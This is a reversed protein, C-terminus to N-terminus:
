PQIAFLTPVPAAAAPDALIGRYLAELRETQHRLNFMKRMREQGDRGLRVRLGADSLVRDLAAALACWDGEPVLLGGNGQAVAEPIGGVEYSVVPVGCAQAEAFVMGFGERWGDSATISPVCMVAARRLWAAVEEPPRMGLFDARVGITAALRGLAAREPGDGLLVVRLDPHRQRIEAVARILHSGGKGEVLRGAFVVIPERPAAPDGRFRDLDVGTYHVVVRDAPFGQALLCDKIFHSVAIFLTASRQLAGRRMLYLRHRPFSRRAFDDRTTADYGHFTVVLPIRLKRALPMALVGDPGFHAHVLSPKLRLLQLAAAPIFGTSKFVVDRLSGLLGGGHVLHTREPPPPRRCLKSGVYHAEFGLLAEAQSRIFTESEGLLENRYILVVRRDRESERSSDSV